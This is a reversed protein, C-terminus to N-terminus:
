RFSLMSRRQSPLPACIHCAFPLIIKNKNEKDYDISLKEMLCQYCGYNHFRSTNFDYIKNNCCPKHCRQTSVVRIIVLPRDHVLCKHHSIM